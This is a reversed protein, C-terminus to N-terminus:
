SKVIILLISMVIVVVALILICHMKRNKRQYREAKQLQKYGEHVQVQTQEINYDIRDLITGQEHVMHALDKFIDNLDVISRVIKNVEKEREAIMQTNEEEMLLLQKQNQNRGDEEYNSTSPLAFLLDTQNNTLGPLLENDDLSLEEFNPLDFYVNSREERSTLSKLYNSQATRFTLSLDQLTTVLALVVNNALKQESKNGHRVQARINSIRAHAQTFHKGIDAAVREIHQQESSDDLAPRRIQREHRAQLESIKSKLRSIIYHTEELCDSWPPPADSESRMEMGAEMDHSNSRMLRVKEHGHDNAQESFIQRTHIANNRMLVFVETLSRSAM